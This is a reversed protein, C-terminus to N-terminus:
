GAGDAAAVGAGVSGLNCDDAVNEVVAILHRGGLLRVEERQQVVGDDMLGPLAAGVRVPRHHTQGVRPRDLPRPHIQFPVDNIVGLFQHAM